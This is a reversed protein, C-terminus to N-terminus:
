ESALLDNGIVDWGMERNCRMEFATPYKSNTMDLFLFFLIFFWQPSKRVRRARFDPLLMTIIIFAYLTIDTTRLTDFQTYAIFKGHQLNGLRLVRNM